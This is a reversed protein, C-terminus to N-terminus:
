HGAVPRAPAPPQEMIPLDLYSGRLLSLRVPTRGSAISDGSVARGSGYNLERDPRKSVRLVMVLRAGSEVRVATIRASTFSLWEPAGPVLLRRRAPDHLSSARFE